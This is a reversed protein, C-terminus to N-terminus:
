YVVDYFLKHDDPVYKNVIKRIDPDPAKSSKVPPPLSATAGKESSFVHEM